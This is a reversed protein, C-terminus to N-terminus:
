NNYYSIDDLTYTLGYGVSTTLGQDNYVWVAVTILTDGTDYNLAGLQATSIKFEFMTGLTEVAMYPNAVGEAIDGVEEPATTYIRRAERKAM